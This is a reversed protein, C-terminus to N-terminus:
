NENEDNEVNNHDGKNNDEDGIRRSTTITVKIITKMVMANILTIVPMMTTM